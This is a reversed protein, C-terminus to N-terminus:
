EMGPSWYSYWFGIHIRDMCLCKAISGKVSQIGAYLGYSDFHYFIHKDNICEVSYKNRNYIDVDDGKLSDLYFISRDFQIQINFLDNVLKAKIDNDILSNEIKNEKILYNFESAIHIHKHKFFTTDNNQIINLTATADVGIGIKEPSTSFKTKASSIYTEILM